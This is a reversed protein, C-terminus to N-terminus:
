DQIGFSLAAWSVFIVGLVGVILLEAAEFSIGKVAELHGFTRTLGEVYLIPPGAMRPTAAAAAETLETSSLPLDAISLPQRTQEETTM